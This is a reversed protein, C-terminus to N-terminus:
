SSKQFTRAAEFHRNLEDLCVGLNFWAVPVQPADTAIKEAVKVADEWNEAAVHSEYEEIVNM